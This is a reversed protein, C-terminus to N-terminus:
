REIGVVQSSLPAARNGMLNHQVTRAGPRRPLAAIPM